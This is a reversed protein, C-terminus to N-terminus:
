KKYIAILTNKRWESSIKNVCLSRILFTQWGVYEVDDLCKSVEIAIENPGVVKRTKMSRLADNEM